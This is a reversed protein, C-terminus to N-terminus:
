QNNLSLVVSWGFLCLNLIIFVIIIGIQAGKIISGCLRNIIEMGVTKLLAEAVCVIILIVEFMHLQGQQWCKANM